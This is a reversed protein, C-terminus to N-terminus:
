RKCGGPNDSSIWHCSLAIRANSFDDRDNTLDLIKEYQWLAQELNKFRKNYVINYKYPVGSGQQTVPIADIEYLDRQHWSEEIKKALVEQNGDIEDLYLGYSIQDEPYHRKDINM